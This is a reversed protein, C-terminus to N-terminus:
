SGGEATRAVLFAFRYKGIQVEDGGALVQTEIRRRNVYSGNLSGIDALVWGGNEPRFEAHRRSVTVDDLFLAAEPSRGVTAIGGAPDLTIRTGESPGRLALLVAGGAPLGSVSREDVLPLPKSDGESAVRLGLVGTLEQAREDDGPGGLAAIGVPAGCSPCFKADDDTEHGCQACRISM